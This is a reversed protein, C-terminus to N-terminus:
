PNIDESDNINENSTKAYQLKVNNRKPSNKLGKKQGLNQLYYYKKSRRTSKCKFYQM